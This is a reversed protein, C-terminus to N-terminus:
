GPPWGLARGGLLHFHMHPVSQGADPGVNTVMRWGTGGIGEAKALHTAAQFIEALVDGNEKGLDAASEIHETPILLLHIPAKPNADRFAVVRDTAHVIDAPIERSAIRCFICDSAQGMKTMGHL